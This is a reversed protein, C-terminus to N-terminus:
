IPAPPHSARQQAAYARVQAPTWPTPGTPPPFPWPNPQTTM